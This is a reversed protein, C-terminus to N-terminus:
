PDIKKASVLPKLILSFISATLHPCLSLVHPCLLYNLFDVIKQIFFILFRYLYHAFLKSNIHCSPMPNHLFIYLIQEWSAWYHVDQYKVSVLLWFQRESKGCCLDQEGLQILVEPVTVKLFHSATVLTRSVKVKSFEM